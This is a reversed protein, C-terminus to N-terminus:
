NEKSDEHHIQSPPLKQHCSLCDHHAIVTARFDLISLASNLTHGEVIRTAARLLGVQAIVAGSLSDAM